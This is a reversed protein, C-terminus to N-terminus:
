DDHRAGGGWGSVNALTSPVQEPQPPVHHDHQRERALCGISSPDVRICWTSKFSSYEYVAADESGGSPM